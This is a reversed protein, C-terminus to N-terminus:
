KVGPMTEIVEVPSVQKEHFSIINAAAQQIAQKLEISLEKEAANIATESVLLDDLEIGDFQKTFRKVATDGGTKVEDLILKVKQELAAAEIVPRALLKKWESRGPLKFTQM